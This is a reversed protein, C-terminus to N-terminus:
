NNKNANGLEILKERISNFSKNRIPVYNLKYKVPHYLRKLAYRFVKSSNKVCKDMMTIVEGANDVLNRGKKVRKRSVVKRIPFSEHVFGQVIGSFSDNKKYDPSSNQTRYEANILDFRAIYANHETMFSSGTEQIQVKFVQKACDVKKNSTSPRSLTPSVPKSYSNKNSIKSSNLPLFSPMRPRQSLFLASQPRRSKPLSSQHILRNQSKIPHKNFTIQISSIKGPMPSSNTPSELNEM